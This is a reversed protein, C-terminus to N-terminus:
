SATTNLLLTPPSKDRIPNSSPFEPVEFARFEPSSSIFETRTEVGVTFAQPANDKDFSEWNLSPRAFSVGNPCAAHNEVNENDFLETRFGFYTLAVIFATAYYINFTLRPSFM